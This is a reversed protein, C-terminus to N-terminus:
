PSRVFYAFAIYDWCQYHGYPYNAGNKIRAAVKVPGSGTRERGRRTPELARDVQFVPPRSKRVHGDTGGGDRATQPALVAIDRVNGDTAFTRASRSFLVRFRTIIIISGPPRPSPTGCTVDTSFRFPWDSLFRGHRPGTVRPRPARTVPTRATQRYNKKNKNVVSRIGVDGGDGIIQPRTLVNRLSVVRGRDEWRYKDFFRKRVGDSRNLAPRFKKKFVTETLGDGVDLGEDTHKEGDGAHRLKSRGVTKVSIFGWSGFM